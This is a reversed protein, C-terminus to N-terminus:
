NILEEIISNMKLWKIMYNNVLPLRSRLFTSYSPHGDVRPRQVTLDKNFQKNLEENFSGRRGPFRGPWFGCFIVRNLFAIKIWLSRRSHAWKQEPRANEMRAGGDSAFFKSRAGDPGEFKRTKYQLNCPLRLVQSIQGHLICPLRSRHDIKYQLNACPKRKGRTKCPKASM